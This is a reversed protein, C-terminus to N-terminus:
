FIRPDSLQIRHIFDKAERCDLHNRLFINENTLILSLQQRCQESVDCSEVDLDHLGVSNLMESPSIPQDRGVLFSASHSVVRPKVTTERNIDEDAVCPCLSQM